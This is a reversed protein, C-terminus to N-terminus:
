DKSCPAVKHNLGTLNDKTALTHQQLRQCKDVRFCGLESLLFSLKLKWNQDKLNHQYIM